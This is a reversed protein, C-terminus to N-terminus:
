QQVEFLSLQEVEIAFAVETAQKFYLSFTTIGPFLRFWASGEAVNRTVDEGNITVTRFGDRMNIVILGPNSGADYTGLVEFKEVAGTASERRLEIDSIVGEYQILFIPGRDIVGDYQVEIETEAVQRGFVLRKEM